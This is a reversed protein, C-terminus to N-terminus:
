DKQLRGGGDRTWGPPTKEKVPMMGSLGHSCEAILLRTGSVQENLWLMCSKRPNAVKWANTDLLPLSKPVHVSTRNRWFSTPIRSGNSLEGWLEGEALVEIAWAYSLFELGDPTRILFSDKQSGTINRFPLSWTVDELINRQLLSAYVSQDNNSHPLAHLVRLCEAAPFSSTRKSICLADVIAIRAELLNTTYSTYPNEQFTGCIHAQSGFITRPICNFILTKLRPAVVPRFDSLMTGSRSPNFGDGLVAPCLTSLRVRLHRLRPLIERLADCLHADGPKFYDNGRSDIEVNVCTKPLIKVFESILPRPIWFGIANPHSSVTLSFTIMTVMSAIKDASIYLLSWLHQSQQSGHQKMHEDDELFADPYSATTDKAPQVPDITITLSCVLPAHTISFSKGFVELNSNTLLIDSYLLPLTADLWLKCCLLCQALCSTGSTIKVHLLIQSLIEKPLRGIPPSCAPQPPPPPSSPLSSPPSPSAM